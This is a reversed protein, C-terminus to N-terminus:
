GMVVGVGVVGGRKNGSMTREELEGIVKGGAVSVGVVVIGVVGGSGSGGGVVAVLTSHTAGL